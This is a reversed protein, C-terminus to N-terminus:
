SLSQNCWCWFVGENESSEHKCYVAIEWQYEAHKNDSPKIFLGFSEKNIIVTSVM